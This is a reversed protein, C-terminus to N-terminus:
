GTRGGWRTPQMGTISRTVMRGENDYTAADEVDASGYREVRLRKKTMRGAATFSYDRQFRVLNSCQSGWEERVLRGQGNATYEPDGVDYTYTVSSCYDETGNAFYRRAQTVRQYADYTYEVRQNKADTRRQLTGDANYTYSTTGSEPNTVSSLRQTTSDYVFTRTQTVGDRPMSVQTLRNLVNYTYTTQYDSGGGPRPETVQVLNGLADLTHQKWKGAADTVRVTNGVYLYVTASGDAATV